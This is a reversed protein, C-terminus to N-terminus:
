WAIAEGSRWKELRVALPEEEDEDGEQQVAAAAVAAAEDGGSEGDSSPESPPDPLYRRYHGTEQGRGAIYEALLQERDISHVEYGESGRRVRPMKREYEAFHEAGDGDDADAEDDHHYYYSSAREKDEWEEAPEYDPHYPPVTSVGADPGAARKRVRLQQASPSRTNSPLLEPNPGNNDYTWPSAPQM